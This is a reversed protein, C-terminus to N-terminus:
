IFCFVLNKLALAVLVVGGIRKFIGLREPKVKKVIASAFCIGLTCLLLTTGGIVIGDLWLPFSLTALSVGCALADISTAIAQFLITKTGFKLKSKEPKMFGDIFMLVGVIFLAAFAIYNEASSLAALKDGILAGLVPMVGQFVGFTIAVAIRKIPKPRYALGDCVATVFADAAVSLAICILTFIEVSYFINKAARNNSLYLTAGFKAIFFLPM